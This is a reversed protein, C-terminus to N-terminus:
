ASGEIPFEKNVRTMVELASLEKPLSCIDMDGFPIGSGMAQRKSSRGGFWKAENRRMEIGDRRHLSLVHKAGDRIVSRESWLVGKSDASLNRITVGDDEPTNIAERQRVRRFLPMNM